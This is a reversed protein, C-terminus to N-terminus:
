LTFGGESDDDSTSAGDPGAVNLPGNEAEHSSLAAVLRDVNARSEATEGSKRQAYIASGLERLLADARRRAQVDEIKAQGAKGAEQAKQALQNAQAKVKDMFAM